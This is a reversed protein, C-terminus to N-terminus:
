ASPSLDAPSSLLSPFDALKQLAADFDARSVSLVFRFYGPLGTWEPPNLLVGTAQHLLSALNDYRLQVGQLTCALLKASPRAVLFLGGKSSLPEWGTAQLAVTLASARQRLEQRQAALEALLVADRELQQRLAKKLTYRLALHPEPRSGGHLARLVEPDDAVAYGLRLGGAAFEKSLGGLIAVRPRNTVSRLSPILTVTDAEDFELGSFVADLLTVVGHAHAVALLADLEAASYKAGTPNVLPANLVLWVGKSRRQGSISPDSSGQNSSSGLLRELSAALLTPTLKFCDQVEGQAIEVSAGHFQATAVFHGYAGAPFLLTLQQVACYEAVASFLPALGNGLVVRSSEDRQWGLRAQLLAFIEPTPETEAPSLSMKSFAEFISESIVRPAPLSNEGYDLRLTGPAAAAQVEGLIAPHQLARLVSEPPPLLRSCEEPKEETCNREVAAGARTETLQFNLLEALIRQYYLQNFVPTRSYTLEAASTLQAIFTKNESIFFAAELDQYLRNKVLGFLLSVHSPLAHQGLWSLLGETAPTSSLELLDSVDVVLRTGARAAAAALKEFADHFRGESAPLTYIVLAPQLKEILECVLEARRPIELVKSRLGCDSNRLGQALGFDLLALQPRYLQLLVRCSALLSPTVVVQEASWSCRFYNRFFSAIRKRFSGLGETHEYPFTTPAALTETLGSLFSMKEEALADDSYSLDIANRAPKKRLYRLINRTALPDRMKAEYVSLSHAIEGGSEAYALATTASIPTASGQGMFFEFRHPSQTEIQVLAAIDTDKAQSVQTHWVRSVSFGRRLFLHRLVASGPRGGLNFIIKGSPRLVDVAEELARAILGLGFQDELSGSDGTAYNSLSHLFEDSQAEIGGSLLKATFDPDPNLVQPICGIIRDVVWGHKQPVALLDSVYFQVRGVLSPANLYLNLKSCVVARPNIDLGILQAPQTQLALAISIWGNGCGLEVVKRDLFETPRYRTLGEFFTFSWQEPAFTSPLQLLRLTLTTGSEPTLQLTSLSFHYRKMLATPTQKGLLQQALSHWFELAAEHTAPAELQALLEKFADYADQSSRVCRSLFQDQLTMSLM